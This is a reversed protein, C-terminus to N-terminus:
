KFTAIECNCGLINESRDAKCNKVLSLDLSTVVQDARNIETESDAYYCSITSQTCQVGVAKLAQFKWGEALKWHQEVTPELTSPCEQFFNTEGSRIAAAVKAEQTSFALQKTEEVRLRIAEGAITKLDTSFLMVVATVVIIAAFISLLIIHHRSFKKSARKRRAM